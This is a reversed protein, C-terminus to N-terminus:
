HTYSSMTSKIFLPKDDTNAVMSCVVFSIEDIFNAEIFAGDLIGVTRLSCTGISVINKLKFM